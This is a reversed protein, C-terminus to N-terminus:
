VGRVTRKRRLPRVSPVGSGKPTAGAAPGTGQQTTTHHSLIMCTSTTLACVKRNVHPRADKRRSMEDMRENQEASGASTDDSSSVRHPPARGHNAPGAPADM